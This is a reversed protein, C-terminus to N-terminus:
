ARAEQSGEVLERTETELTAEYETQAQILVNRMEQQQVQWQAAMAGLAEQDSFQQSVLAHYHMLLQQPTIQPIPEGEGQVHEWGESM